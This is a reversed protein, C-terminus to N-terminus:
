PRTTSLPCIQIQTQEEVLSYIQEIESDTVAICGQTWDRLTHIRQIVEPVLSDIFKTPLGHIMIDSGPNVKLKKARSRDQANPYSVKLALHYNSQPNKLEVVYNGEPTRGDGEKLKPGQQLGFGFSVKFEKLVKGASLLYLRHRVKSVLILDVKEDRELTQIRDANDILAMDKCYEFSAEAQVESLGALIGIVFGLLVLLATKIKM